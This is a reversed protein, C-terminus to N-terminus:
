FLDPDFGLPKEGENVSRLIMNYKGWKEIMAPDAMFDLADQKSECEEFMYIKGGQKIEVWYEKTM